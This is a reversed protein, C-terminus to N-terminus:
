FANPESGYVQVYDFLTQSGAPVGDSVTKSSLEIVLRQSGFTNTVQYTLSVHGDGISTGNTSALETGTTCNSACLRVVYGGFAANQVYPQLVRVTLTYTKNQTVRENMVQTYKYGDSSYFMQRGHIAAQRPYTLPPYVVGGSGPGGGVWAFVPQAGSTSGPSQLVPREFSPNMVQENQNPFASANYYELTVSCEVYLPVRLLLRFLSVDGAAHEGPSAWRITDNSAPVGSLSIINKFIVSGQSELRQAINFAVDTVAAFNRVQGGRNACVINATGLLGRYGPTASTTLLVEDRYPLMSGQQRNNSHGQFTLAKTKVNVTQAALPPVCEGRDDDWILGTTQCDINAAFDERNAAVQSSLSAVLTSDLAATIQSAQVSLTSSQSDITSQATSLSQTLSSVAMQLSSVSAQMNCLDNSSCANNGRGLTIDNAQLEITGRNGGATVVINNGQAEIGPQGQTLGALVLSAFVGVCVLSSLTM